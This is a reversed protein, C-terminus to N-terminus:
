KGLKNKLYMETLVSELLSMDKESIKNNFALLGKKSEKLEKIENEDLESIFFKIVKNNHEILYFEKEETRDTTHNDKYNGSEGNILWDMTVNFFNAYYNLNEKSINKTGSEWRSISSRSFKANFKNNIETSLEEGTLNRKERLDKLRKGVEKM